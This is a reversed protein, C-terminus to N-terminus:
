SFLFSSTLVISNKSKISSREKPARALGDVMGGGAMSCNWDNM